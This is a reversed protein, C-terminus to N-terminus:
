NIPLKCAWNVPENIATYVMSNVLAYVLKAIPGLRTGGQKDSIHQRIVFKRALIAIQHYVRCPLAGWNYTSKYVM